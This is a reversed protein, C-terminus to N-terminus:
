DEGWWVPAARWHCSVEYACDGTATVDVAFDVTASVIGPRSGAHGGDDAATVHATVQSCAHDGQSYTCTLPDGSKAWTCRTTLPAYDAPGASLVLWGTPSLDAYPAVWGEYTWAVQLAPSHIEVGGRRVVQCASAGPPVEAGTAAQGHLRVTPPIVPTYYCSTALWTLISCARMWRPQLFRRSM